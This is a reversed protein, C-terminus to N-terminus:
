DLDDVSCDGGDSRSEVGDPLDALVRQLVRKSTAMVTVRLADNQREYAVINNNGYFRGPGRPRLGLRKSLGAIQNELQQSYPYSQVVAAGRRSGWYALASVTGSAEEPAIAESDAPRRRVGGPKTMWFLGLICLGALIVPPVLTILFNLPSYRIQLVAYDTCLRHEALNLEVTLPRPGTDMIRWPLYVVEWTIQVTTNPPVAAQCAGYFDGEVAVIGLVRPVSGRNTVNAVITFPEQQVVTNPVETLRFDFAQHVHLVVSLYLFVLDMAEIILSLSHNRPPCHPLVALALHHINLGPMLLLNLRTEHGVAPAGLTVNAYAPETWSSDVSCEVRLVEGQLVEGDYAVVASCISRAAIDLAASISRNDMAFAEIMLPTPSRLRVTLSTVGSANTVVLTSTSLNVLSCNLTVLVSQQAVGVWHAFDYTLVYILVQDGVMPDAKDAGLGVGSTHGGLLWDLSAAGIKAIYDDIPAEVGLFIVPLELAPNDYYGMACWSDNGVLVLLHQVLAVAYVIPSARFVAASEDEMLHPSGIAPHFARLGSLALFRTGRTEIATGTMQHLLQVGAGGLGLTPLHGQTIVTALSADVALKPDLVLAAYSRAGLIDVYDIVSIPAARSIHPMWQAIANSQNPPVRYALSLVTSVLLASVHQLNVAACRGVVDNSTHKYPDPYQDTSLTISPIGQTHFTWESVSWALSSQVEIATTVRAATMDVLSINLLSSAAQLYELVPTVDEGPYRYLALQAPFLMGRYAIEDVNLVLVTSPDLGLFSFGTAVLQQSGWLPLTGNGEEGGLFSFVVNCREFNGAQTALVRLAEFVAAVGAADDDAGPASSLAIGLISCRVSDVHCTVVLSPQSTNVGWPCVYLNRTWYPQLVYTLGNWVRRMVPFWEEQFSLGLGTIQAALFSLSANGGEVFPHRCDFSTLSQLLGM